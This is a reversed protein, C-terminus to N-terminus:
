EWTLAEWLFGVVMFGISVALAAPTHDSSIFIAAGLLAFTFFKM